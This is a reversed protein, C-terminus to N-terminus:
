SLPKSSRQCDGVQRAQGQGQSGLKPQHGRFGRPLAYPQQGQREQQCVQTCDQGALTAEVIVERRSVVGLNCPQQKGTTSRRTRSIGEARERKFACVAVRCVM